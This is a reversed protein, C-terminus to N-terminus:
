CSGSNCWIDGDSNGSDGYRFVGKIRNKYKDVSVIEMDTQKSCHLAKGDRLYVLLHYPLIPPKVIIIDGFKVDKLSVEQCEEKFHRLMDQWDEVNYRYSITEPLVKYMPALCGWAFGDKYQEYPEGIFKSVEEIKIM